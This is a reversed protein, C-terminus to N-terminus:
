SLNGNHFILQSQQNHHQHQVRSLCAYPVDINFLTTDPMALIHSLIVRLAGGHIVVLLHKNDTMAHQTLTDNWAYIVRAKFHSLSEGNPPPNDNPNDWYQLLREPDRDMIQKSTLGEWDGFDIESFRPEIQLKLQHTENLQHAFDACRSLPSSILHTWPAAKNISNLKLADAMQQWGTKSLADDTRGRYRAGGLPEGHRLIDILTSTSM